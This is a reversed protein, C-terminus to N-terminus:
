RRHRRWASWIGDPPRTGGPPAAPGVAHPPARLAAARGPSRAATTPSSAGATTPAWPRSAGGCGPWARRPALPAGPGGMDTRVWGPSLAVCIVGRPALDVALSRVLANAGAKASRYMYRGGSDNLQISALRSSLVVVTKRQSAAVHELFAETVRLPGILDVDLVDAWVREDLSALGQTAPGWIAANNLLVDVPQGALEAALTRARPRDRVDLAHVTVRGGAARALADLAEARAPARCTAVVRWGAAAYQRAFELGLGRSAGTILVGPV